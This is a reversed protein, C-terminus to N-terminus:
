GRFFSPGRSSVEGKDSINKFHNKLMKRVEGSLKLDKSFFWDELSYKSLMGKKSVDAGYKLLLSLADINNAKMTAILPLEFFPAGRTAFPSSYIEEKIYQPPEEYGENGYENVAIGKNLLLKLIDMNSGHIACLLAGPHNNVTESNEISLLAEVVDTHQHYIAATLATGYLYSQIDSQLTSYKILKNVTDVDDIRAAVILPTENFYEDAKNIDCGDKKLLYDILEQNGSIIANNLPTGFTNENFNIDCSLHEICYKVKDKQGLSSYVLMALHAAPSKEPLKELSHNLKTLWDSSTDEDDEENYFNWVMDSIWNSENLEITEDAKM